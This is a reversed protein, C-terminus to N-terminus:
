HHREPVRAAAFRHARGHAPESEREVGALVGARPQAAHGRPAHEDVTPEDDYRRRHRVPRHLAVNPPRSRQPGWGIRAITGSRFSEAPDVKWACTIRVTPM